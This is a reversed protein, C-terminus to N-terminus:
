NPSVGLSKVTDINLYKDVPLNKSQQYRNVARMTEVGIVGDIPGPDFGADLLAQQIKAIRDPTTNTECLISRWEMHGDNILEQRTVHTYEAPVEIRREQAPVTMETVEVSRYEAPIEVTKTSAPKDVVQKKVNKYIAPVEVTKTKAPSKLVRKSITKYTAPIEVLCMIEGTTDDIRQIPGTGKKWTTYAPKDVVRETMTEYVAPVQVIKKTNPKVLVQEVVTKYTAPVTVLRTSAEKVLVRKKVKGYEAPIIEIRESAEKVLIRETINKHKPPVWVRTYCEGPKAHTPLLDASADNNNVTAPSESSQMAQTNADTSKEREELERQLQLLEAEKKDLAATRAQIDDVTSDANEKPNSSCAAATLVLVMSIALTAAKYLNNM